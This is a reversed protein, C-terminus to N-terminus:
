GIGCKQVKKEGFACEIFSWTWRNANLNKQIKQTSINANASLWFCM